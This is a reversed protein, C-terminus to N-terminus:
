TAPKHWYRVSRSRSNCTSRSRLSVALSAFGAAFLFYIDPEPVAHMALGDIGMFTRTGVPASDPVTAVLTVLHARALAVFSHSGPSWINDLSMGPPPAILDSFSSTVGDILLTWQGPAGMFPQGSISNIGNLSSQFFNVTYRQGVLLGTVTQQLGERQRFLYPDTDRQWSFSRVFTGGDPSLNYTGFPGTSDATDSTNGQYQEWGGPLRGEGQIGTLSGNYILTSYGTSATASLVFAIAAKILSIRTM